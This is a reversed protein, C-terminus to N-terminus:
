YVKLKHRSFVRKPGQMVESTQSKAPEINDPALGLTVEGKAILKLTSITNEYDKTARELTKLPRYTQLWYYAIRCAYQALVTPPDTLPLQFRSALYGDIEASADVLKTDLKDTDVTDANPDENTLQILDRAPYRDIMDQAQAYAMQM